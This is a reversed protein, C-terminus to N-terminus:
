LAVEKKLSKLQTWDFGKAVMFYSGSRDLEIDFSEPVFITTTPEEVVAPGEIVRGVPIDAGEYIPVPM